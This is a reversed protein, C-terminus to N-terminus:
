DDYSIREVAVGDNWLKLLIYGEKQMSTTVVYRTGDEYFERDLFSHSHAHLSLVVNPDSAVINAYSQELNDDFDGDWPPVHSAVIVKRNDFNEDLMRQLWELDPVRGNFEYERSNTDLIIFRFDGYNFAYNYEGYMEVYVKKGNALLDHNGVVTIYPAKLDTLIENIWQFEKVLGFDSIDGGHIVFDVDHTSNVHSVFEETEDYWRQSDGMFAVVITDSPNQAGIKQLNKATLNKEDDDLIVQNPSYEFCGVMPLLWILIIFVSHKM